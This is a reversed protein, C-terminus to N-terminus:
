ELLGAVSASVHVGRPRTAVTGECRSGGVDGVRPAFEGLGPELVIIVVEDCGVLSMFATEFSWGACTRSSRSPKWIRSRSLSPTTPLSSTASMNVWTPLDNSRRVLGGGVGWFIIEILDFKCDWAERRVGGRDRM